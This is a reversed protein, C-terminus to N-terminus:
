HCRLIREHVKVDKVVLSRGVDVFQITVVIVSKEESSEEQQIDQIEITICNMKMNLVRFGGVATILNALAIMRNKFFLNSSLQINRCTM